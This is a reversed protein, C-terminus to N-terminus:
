ANTVETQNWLRFFSLRLLAGSPKGQGLSGPSLQHRCSSQVNWINFRLLPEYEMLTDM